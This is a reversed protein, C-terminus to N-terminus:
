SASMVYGKKYRHDQDWQNRQNNLSGLRDMSSTELSQLLKWSQRLQRFRSTLRSQYHLLHKLKQHASAICACKSTPIALASEEKTPKTPAISKSAPPPMTPLRSVFKRTACIITVLMRRKGRLQLDIFARMSPKSLTVHLRLPMIHSRISFPM